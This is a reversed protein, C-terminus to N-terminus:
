SKMTLEGTEPNVSAIFRCHPFHSCGWFPGYQGDRLILEGGCNPCIGSAFSQDKQASIASNSIELRKQRPISFDEKGAIRAYGSCLIKDNTDDISICYKCEYCDLYLNAYPIGRYRRAPLPCNNIHLLGSKRSVVRRKDSVSYFRNLWKEAMANYRWTKEESGKLLIDSLEEPSITQEKKSLDIELTSVGQKKLKALKVDDIKHTVFIEIFLKQKGAYVVVDPIVSDFRAELEVGDIPIEMEDSLLIDEKYSDPFKLYVAPIIMKKANSLIEKAALHLSTEYGYDCSVEPYHAFHHARKTGKNRAVLPSACAPCVCGCKKGTEVDDVFVTQNDKLACILNVSM